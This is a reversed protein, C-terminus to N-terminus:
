FPKWDPSTKKRQSNEVGHPFFNMLNRSKHYPLISKSMDQLTKGLVARSWIWTAGLPEHITRLVKHVWKTHLGVPKM